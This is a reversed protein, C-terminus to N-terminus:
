AVTPIFKARLEDGQLVTVSAGVRPAETPTQDAYVVVGPLPTQALAPLAGAFFMASALATRGRASTQKVLGAPHASMVHRRTKLFSRPLAPTASAQRRFTTSRSPEGRGGRMCTVAASSGSRRAGRVGSPHSACAPRRA